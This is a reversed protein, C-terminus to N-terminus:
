LARDEDNRRIARLAQVVSRALSRANAADLALATTGFETQFVPVVMPGDDRIVAVLLIDARTPRDTVRDDQM